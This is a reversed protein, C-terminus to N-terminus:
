AAKVEREWIKLNLAEKIWALHRQEDSYNKELTVRIEPSLDMKLAAQYRSNTLMENGQMSVLASHTGISTIATFGEILYGKLDQKVEPQAGLARVHASLDTVHRQHDARFETLKMKVSAHECAEIAQDYAKIADVDLQILNNLERVVDTM